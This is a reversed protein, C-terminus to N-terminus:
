FQNSCHNEGNSQNDWIEKQSVVALNSVFQARKLYNPFEEFTPPIVIEGDGNIFGILDNEVILARNSSLQGIEQFKAPIVVQCNRKM